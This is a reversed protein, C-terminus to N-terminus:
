RSAGSSPVPFYPAAAAFQQFDVMLFFFGLFPLLITFCGSFPLIDLKPNRNLIKRWEEVDYM